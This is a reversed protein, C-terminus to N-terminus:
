SKCPKCRICSHDTRYMGNWERRVKKREEILIEKEESYYDM